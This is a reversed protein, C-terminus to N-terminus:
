IGHWSMTCPTTKRVCQEGGAVVKDGLLQPRRQEVLSVRVFLEILDFLCLSLGVEDDRRYSESPADLASRLAGGRGRYPRPM